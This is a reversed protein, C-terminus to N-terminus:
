VPVPVVETVDFTYIRKNTADPGAQNDREIVAFTTGGDVSAIESLGIWGGAPSTVEDLPYHLFAWEGTAPTYRGIRVLGEPDDGWERQFAVWVQESAGRGVVAVGEYGNNRQQAAVEAPLAVEALVTGDEAVE